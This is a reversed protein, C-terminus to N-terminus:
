SVGASPGMPMQVPQVATKGGANREPKVGVAEAGQRGRPMRSGKEIALFNFERACKGQANEGAGDVLFERALKLRAVM